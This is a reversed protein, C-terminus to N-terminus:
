SSPSSLCLSILSSPTPPHTRSYLPPYPLFDERACVVREMYSVANVALVISIYLKFVNGGLLQSWAASIKYIEMDRIAAILANQWSPLNAHFHSVDATRVTIVNSSAFLPHCSPKISSVTTFEQGIELHGGFLGPFTASPPTPTGGNVAAVIAAHALPLQAVTLNIYRYLSFFPSPPLHCLQPTLPASFHPTCVSVYCLECTISRRSFLSPSSTREASSSSRLRALLLPASTTSTALVRSRYSRPQHAAWKHKRCRYGDMPASLSRRLIAAHPSYSNALPRSVQAHM